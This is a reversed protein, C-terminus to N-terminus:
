WLQSGVALMTLVLMSAMHQGCWMGDRARDSAHRLRAWPDVAIAGPHLPVSDPVGMGARVVNASSPRARAGSILGHLGGWAPALLHPLSLVKSANCTKRQRLVM